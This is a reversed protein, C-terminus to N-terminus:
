FLEKIKINVCKMVRRKINFTACRLKICDRRSYIILKIIPEMARVYVTTRHAWRVRFIIALLNIIKAIYMPSM